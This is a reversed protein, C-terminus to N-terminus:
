QVQRQAAGSYGSERGDSDRATLVFYYTGVPLDTVTLSTTFPDDINISSSYSGESPGYYLTYGALESLPLPTGDSRTSPAAWSLSVSGTQTTGNVAISFAALTITEVGDSVSVRINSYDGADGSGPTGSLRGTSSDFAAWAPRNQISFSLKDGDPDSATPQFSYLSGEDISSAPTGSIKPADNTNIVTISFPGVAASSAGDSVSIMINGYTGVDSNRPTGSLRGTSSNFSAWSPRNSVSFTLSDGEADRASPQFVYGSDEEVSGAPSGSITPARNSPSNFNVSISFAGLSSSASGDSVSIVINNFLGADASSPTGFLHGTSRDFSAWSPRNSISFSFSDGDVDSATPQFSYSNGATVGDPATGSIIPADNSNSVTISFPGISDDASGDSVWIIIDAHTGVHANDPTGSLRGTNEDFSAWVPRNQISFSLSDGDPDSAAPQFAYASDEAVSADPTGGLVPAGNQPESPAEDAALRVVENVVVLEQEPMAAALALVADLDSSTDGPLVAEVDAPLSNNRIGALAEALTTLEIGPALTRAAEVATRAQRLMEANIRVDGTLASDRTSPHTAKIAADLGATAVVGDVKLSNSLAEVLVQASILTAVAAVRSDANAGGLGDIVGDVLDHSLAEVVQDASIGLGAAQLNSVTRRVMEGLAESAKVMVAVNDDAIETGIPDGVLAPDLGFNLQQVVADQMAAVNEENLGGSMSRAAGVILTSFPNVNVSKVKPHVVVSALGFDPARGTVLDTGGSVEISLPFANGKARIRASYNASDDSTETQVLNGNRDFISLTAGTIPGDGVSGTIVTAAASAESDADDKLELGCGSLQVTIILGSVVTAMYRCIRQFM